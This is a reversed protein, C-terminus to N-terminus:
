FNVGTAVGPRKLWKGVSEATGSESLWEGEATRQGIYSIGVPTGDAEVEDYRQYHVGDRVDERGPRLWKSVSQWDGSESSVEGDLAPTFQLRPESGPPVAVPYGRFAAQGQALHAVLESLTYEHEHGQFRYAAAEPVRGVHYTAPEPSNRWRLTQLTQELLYVPGLPEWTRRAAVEQLQEESEVTPDVAREVRSLDYYAAGAEVPRLYRLPVQTREFLLEVLQPEAQGATPTQIDTM